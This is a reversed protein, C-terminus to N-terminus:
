GHATGDTGQVFNLMWTMALLADPSQCLSAVGQEYTAQGLQERRYGMLAEAYPKSFEPHGQVTIVQDGMTFGGIPCFESTLFTEAGAPLAQVQDKHSCLLALQDSPTHMWPASKIVKGRHVGVGWGADASTVSGGFFHAMLQHGFCIGIIKKGQALAQELFEALQGIWPIDDYVSHRSGTILYVDTEQQLKSGPLELRADVEAITLDIQLQEAASQLVSSFMAPYDGFDSQFQELVNDTRLITLHM